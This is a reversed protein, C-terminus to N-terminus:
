STEVVSILGYQAVHLLDMLAIACAASSFHSSVHPAVKNLKSVIGESLSVHFKVGLAGLSYLLVAYDHERFHQREFVSVCDEDHSICEGRERPFSDRRVYGWAM